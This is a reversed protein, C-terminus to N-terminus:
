CGALNSFLQLADRGYVTGDKWLGPWSCLQSQKQLIVTALPPKLVALIIRVEAKQSLHGLTKMRAWHGTFSASAAVVQDWHKMVVQGQGRLQSEGARKSMFLAWIERLGSFPHHSLNSCPDFILPPIWNSRQLPLGLVFRWFYIYQSTGLTPYVGSHLVFPLGYHPLCSGFRNRM